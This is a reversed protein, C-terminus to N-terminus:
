REVPPFVSYVQREVVNEGFKLTNYQVAGICLVVTSYCSYQMLTRYLFVPSNKKYPSRIKPTIKIKRFDRVRYM